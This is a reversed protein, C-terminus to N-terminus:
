LNQSCVRNKPTVRMEDSTIKLQLCQSPSTDCNVDELDGNSGCAVQFHTISNGAMDSPKFTLTTIGQDFWSLGDHAPVSGKSSPYAQRPIQQGDSGTVNYRIGMIGKCEITVLESSVPSAFPFVQILTDKDKFINVTKMCIKDIRPARTEPEDEPLDWWNEPSTEQEDTDWWNSDAACPVVIVYM